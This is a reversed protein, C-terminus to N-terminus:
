SKISSVLRRYSWLGWGNAPVSSYGALVEIGITNIVREKGREGKMLKQVVKNTSIDRGIFQKNPHYLLQGKSDVIYFYSGYEDVNNNGYIM